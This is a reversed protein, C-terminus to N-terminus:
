APATVTIITVTIDGTGTTTGTVTIDGTVTGTITGCCRFWVGFREDRQQHAAVMFQVGDFRLLQRLDGARQAHRILRL